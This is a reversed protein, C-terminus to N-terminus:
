AIAKLRNYDDLASHLANEEDDAVSGTRKIEATVTVFKLLVEDMDKSPTDALLDFFVGITRVAKGCIEDAAFDPFEQWNDADVRAFERMFDHFKAVIDTVTFQGPQMAKAEAILTEIKSM